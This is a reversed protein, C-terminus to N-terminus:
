DDCCSCCCVAYQKMVEKYNVTDRIDINADFPTSAVAPDLNLLYPAQPPELSNLYSNMRQVFTTKGSGAMGITIIVVPKKSLDGTPASASSSASAMKVRLCFHSVFASFPLSFGFINLKKAARSAHQKVGDRLRLEYTEGWSKSQASYNTIAATVQRQGDGDGHVEREYWEEKRKHECEMAQAFFRERRRACEGREYDSEEHHRGFYVREADREYHEVENSRSSRLHPLSDFLAQLLSMLFSPITGGLLNQTVRQRREECRDKPCRKKNRPRM